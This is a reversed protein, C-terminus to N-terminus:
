ENSTVTIVCAQQPMLHDHCRWTGVKTFTYSYSEGTALGRKADFDPLITHTPHVDSAPWHAAQGNNVFTVVAGTAVNITAPSFGSESMTISAQGAVVAASAVPSPSELAEPPAVIPAPTDGDAEHPIEQLFQGDGMPTTPAAEEQLQDVVSAEEDPTGRLAVFAMATVVVVVVGAAILSSFRM